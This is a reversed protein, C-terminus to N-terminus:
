FPLDESHTVGSLTIDNNNLGKDDGDNDFIWYSAGDPISDPNTPNNYLEQIQALTWPAANRMVPAAIQINPNNSTGGSRSGFAPNATATTMTCSTDTNILSGNVYAKASNVEYTLAIHYWTDVAFVGSPVVDMSVVDVTSNNIVWRIKFVGGGVDELQLTTGDNPGSTQWDFIKDFNNPTALVKVWFALNFNTVSPATTLVATDDTGDLIISNLDLVSPRVGALVAMKRIQAQTLYSGVILGQHQANGILYEGVADGRRGIAGQTTAIAATTKGTVPTGIQQGDIYFRITDGDYTGVYLHWAQDSINVGSSVKGGNEVTDYDFTPQLDTFGIKFLDNGTRAGQMVRTGTNTNPFKALGFVSMPTGSSIAASLFSVIDSGDFLYSKGVQGAQNVDAGTNTGDANGKSDIATTGSPEDLKYYRVLNSLSNVYSVFDQSVVFQGAGGLGGLNGLNLLGNKM